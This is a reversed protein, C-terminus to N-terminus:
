YDVDFDGQFTQSAKENASDQLMYLKGGQKYIVTGGRIERAGKAMAAKHKEASVKMNSKHLRERKPGVMIAEGEGITTVESSKKAQALAASSLGVAAATSIVLLARKSLYMFNEKFTTRAGRERRGLDGSAHYFGLGM